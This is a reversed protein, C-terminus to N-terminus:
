ILFRLTINLFLVIPSVILLSDTRDLFGGHGPMINGSDKVGAARKFMSEVLDGLTAACPVTVGMSLMLLWSESEFFGGFFQKMIFAACICFAVGGFFGEWSKKPSIRPFLRHKGILSGVCFAGTDSIWILIFMALVLSGSRSIMLLQSLAALPFAVYMISLFSVGVSKLPAEDKTYIELILRLPVYLFALTLLIPYFPTIVLATGAVMDMAYIAPHRKKEEDNDALRFLEYMGGLGLLVTLALFWYSGSLTCFVILAIYVIGSLSRVVVNKM